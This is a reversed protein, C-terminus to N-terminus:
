QINLVLGMDLGSQAIVRAQDELQTIAEGAAKRGKGGKKEAIVQDFTGPIAKISKMTKEIQAQTKKALAPDIKMVIDHVSPGATKKYRGFYVNQIGIENGVMGKLTYDSFCDQENEQDNKELAVTMREGAMEDISLNVMGTYIKRLSEDLPEAKLQAGYNNANASDWQGAVQTLHEVLIESLLKLYAGRREANANSKSIYDTHSRSGPGKLSLDQGWLLFEIAHFGTSINKEGNKENLSLLLEKNIQPFEAANNIIGAKDNGKVYDVYAEDMPWANILGEPGDKPDDIPGGYFRFAETPGYADRALQWAKKAEAHTKATPNKLFLDIKTKLQAASAVADAYTAQVIEVYRSVVKAGLEVPIPRKPKPTEAVATLVPLAFLSLVLLKRGLSMKM